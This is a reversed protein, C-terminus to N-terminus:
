LDAMRRGTVGIRSALTVMRIAADGAGIGVRTLGAEIGDTADPRLM